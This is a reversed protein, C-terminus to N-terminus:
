QRDEPSSKLSDEFEYLETLRSTITVDKQKREIGLTKLMRTLHGCGRNYLDLDTHTVAGEATAMRQEIQELAITLTAIRRCLSLQATSARDAGGLDVVYARVIDRCRRVWAGRGDIGPLLRTGNTAASRQRTAGDSGAVIPTANISSSADFPTTDRLSKEAKRAAQGARQGSVKGPSLDEGWDSTRSAM